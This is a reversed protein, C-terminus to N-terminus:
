AADYWDLSSVKPPEIKRAKMTREKFYSETGVPKGRKEISYIMDGNEDARESVYYEWGFYQSVQWRTLEEARAYYWNRDQNRRPPSTNILRNTM